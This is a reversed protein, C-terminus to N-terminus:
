LLSNNIILNIDMNYPIIVLKIKNDVCYKEKIKDRKILKDFVSIGGFWNIPKYHQEGHYEICINYDPLYFDFPLENIHKCNNFKYQPTFKINKNLLINRINKEGKSEKCIPCGKGRLHEYPLQEFIDHQPCIIKIKTKSNNYNVLSYDYFNYHKLKFKNILENSTILKIKLKNTRAKISKITRNLIKACENIGLKSYNESLFIDDNISWKEEITLGLKFSKMYISKESRKLIESCYKAGNISYYKKLFEIEYNNWKNLM